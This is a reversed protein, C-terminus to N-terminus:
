STNACTAGAGSVCTGDGPSRSAGTVWRALVGLDGLSRLLDNLHTCTETGRFRERVLQRVQDIKHGELWAASPAAAPCEAWPLVQPRATCRTLVMSRADLEGEVSYEHLVSTAGGADAHTDRFMAFVAMPEGATVEVLRQRRMAGAGLSPLDHWALPDEAPVLDNPEPGFPVPIVGRTRLSVMMTGDSRWGACIDERVMRADGDLDRVEGSYLLAYGSILTIVPLDDMLLYLPTSRAREDAAAEDLAARFGPGVSLGLLREVSLPRSTELSVLRRDRGIVATVEAADVETPAGDDGTLLDRAAGHVVLGGDHDFGVDIHSTRRASGRRRPPTVAIPDNLGTLEPDVMLSLRGGIANGPLCRGIADAGPRGGTLEHAVGTPWALRM